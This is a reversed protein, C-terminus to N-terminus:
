ASVNGFPVVPLVVIKESVAAAHTNSATQNTYVRRRNIFRATIAPVIGQGRHKSRPDLPQAGDVPM